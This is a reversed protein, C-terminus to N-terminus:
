LIGLKLMESLIDEHYKEDLTTLPLRIIDSILKKKYMMWKVPIPNSQVFLMEYLEKYVYNLDKANSWDEDFALECIKSISRPIINAAVSIVGSSGLTLSNYFTPDDGSYISFTEHKKSIEILENIRKTEDVAEKIGVINPIKALVDVSAPILDCATRTPVNYLIQPMDIESAIKEYHKILGAQTPKNYYPTVLLSYDAGLAQSERTLDVAEQTSNAGTGAIIPIKGSAYEVTKKIVELHEEISLTASEGTTGVSVIGNTGEDIHWQVLSELSDYDVEGSEHFPTVLAVLSGKLVQM